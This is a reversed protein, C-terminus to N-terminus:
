VDEFGENHEWGPQVLNALRDLLESCFRAAAAVMGDAQCPLQCQKRIRQGGGPAVTSCLPVTIFQQYKQQQPNLHSGKLVFLHFTFLAQDFILKAGKVGVLELRIYPVIYSLVLVIAVRQQCQWWM